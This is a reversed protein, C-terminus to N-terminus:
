NTLISILRNNSAKAGGTEEDVVVGEEVVAINGDGRDPLEKLDNTRTGQSQSVRFFVLLLNQRAFFSHPLRGFFIAYAMKKQNQM